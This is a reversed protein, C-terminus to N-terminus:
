PEPTEQEGRDVKVAHIRVVQGDDVWAVGNLADLTLKVYNDLDGRLTRANHPSTTVHLITADPTYVVAIEVPGTLTEGVQSRWAEAVHDEEKLTSAPTFVKGSKTHRPRAKVKPRREVVITYVNM